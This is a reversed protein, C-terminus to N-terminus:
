HRGFRRSIPWTVSRPASLPACGRSRSMSLRAGDADRCTSYQWPVEPDAAIIQVPEDFQNVSAPWWTHSPPGGGHAGGRAVSASRASREVHPGAAGCVCRRRQWPRGRRPVVVGAAVPDVALHRRGPLAPVLDDIQQQGLRAPAIDSPTLGGGGGRVHACIGALADFWLGSLRNVQAHDLASLAWTWGARLRPGADTDVTGANLEVTHMLPMPIAAAVGTVSAGDQCSGGSRM